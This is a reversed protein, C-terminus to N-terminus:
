RNKEEDELPPLVYIDDIEERRVQTISPFAENSVALFLFFICCQNVAIYFSM